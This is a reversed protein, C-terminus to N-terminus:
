ALIEWDDTENINILATVPPVPFRDFDWFNKLISHLSGEYLGLLQWLQRAKVQMVAKDNMTVKQLTHENKVVGWYLLIVEFPM